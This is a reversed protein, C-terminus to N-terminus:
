NSTHLVTIRYWNSTHLLAHSYQNSTHLPALSYQHSAHLTATSDQNSTYLPHLTVTSIQHTCHLTVKLCVETAVSLVGIIPKVPLTVGVRCWRNACAGAMVVGGVVAITLVMLSKALKSMANVLHMCHWRTLMPSTVQLQGMNQKFESQATVVLCPLLCCLWGNDYSVYEEM